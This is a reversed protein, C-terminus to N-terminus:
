TQRMSTVWLGGPIYLCHGLHTIPHMTFWVQRPMCVILVWANDIWSSFSCSINLALLLASLLVLNWNPRCNHPVTNVWSQSVAIDCYLCVPFCWGFSLAAAIHFSPKVKLSIIPLYSKTQDISWFSLTQCAQLMEGGGGINPQKKCGTSEWPLAPLFSKWLPWECSTFSLCLLPLPKHLQAALRCFACRLM